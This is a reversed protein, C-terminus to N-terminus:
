LAPFCHGCVLSMESVLFLLLCPYSLFPFIMNIVRHQQTRGKLLLLGHAGLVLRTDLKVPVSYALGTNENIYLKSMKIDLPLFYTVYGGGEKSPFCYWLIGYKRM